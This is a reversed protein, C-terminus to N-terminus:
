VDSAAAVYKAFQIRVQYVPCRSSNFMGFHQIVRAKGDQNNRFAALGGLERGRGKGGRCRLLRVLSLSVSSSLSLVLFSLFLQVEGLYREILFFFVISQLWIGGQFLNVVPSVLELWLSLLM